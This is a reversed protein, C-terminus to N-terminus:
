QHKKRNKKAFITAPYSILLETLDAKTKHAKVNVGIKLGGLRPFSYNLGIREYYPAELERAWTGMKRYLYFGLSVNLSLQHYFAEHKAAIGVSWPSVTEDYGRQISIEKVRKDYDGYFVDVGLGTAWRRAYRWMVDASASYAMYHKFDGTRYDEDGPNTYFQTLQWEEILSRVGASASLNLYWYSAFPERYKPQEAVSAEYYPQYVIGLSPAVINAGKNPRDVAGNSHHYFDLGLRLGWDHAFHYTAHVGAGFFILLHSGILENDIADVKNYIYPSYGIGMDLTYDVEWHRRRVLPRAFEGYLSLINGMRSDYGVEKLANEDEGWFEIGKHTTIGHNFSWRLGGSLTPYGYDIAYADSDTPLTARTLKLDAAWNRTGKQWKKQWEDVAIARGPMVTLAAGWHRASDAETPENVASYSRAPVILGATLLFFFISLRIKM